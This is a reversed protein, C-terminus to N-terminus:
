RWADSNGCFQSRKGEGAAEFEAKGRAFGARFDVEYRSADGGLAVYMEKQKEKMEVLQEAGYPKGCLEASAAAAGGFQALSAAGDDEEADDADAADVDADVDPQAAPAPEAAAPASAAPATDPAPDTTADAREGACALLLLATALSLAPRAAHGSFSLFRHM